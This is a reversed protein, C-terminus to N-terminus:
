GEGRRVRRKAVLGGAIAEDVAKPLLGQTAYLRYRVLHPDFYGKRGPVPKIGMDTCWKRFSDNAGAYGVAQALEDAHVLGIMQVLHPAPM